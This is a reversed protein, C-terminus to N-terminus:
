LNEIQLRNQFGPALEVGAPLTARVQQRWAAPPLGVIERFCRSFHHVSEFGTLDAVEKVAVDGYCLLEKAKRVRVERLLRMPTRRIEAQCCQSIRRYSLHLHAAIEAATWKHAPDNDFLRQVRQTIGAAASPDGSESGTMRPGAEPPHLAQLLFAHLMLNCRVERFNGPSRACTNLARFPSELDARSPHVGSAMPACTLEAADSLLFKMDLTELFGDAPVCWGHRVGPAFWLFDAAGVAAEGGAWQVEAEGRLVLLCQHFPHDHAVVRLGGRYDFRAIWLLQPSTM